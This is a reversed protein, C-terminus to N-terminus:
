WGPYEDRRHGEQHGGSCRYQRCWHRRSRDSAPKSAAAVVEETVTSGSRVILGHYQPIEAVLEEPSLGTRVEAEIQPAADLIEMGQPALKDAVLVRYM